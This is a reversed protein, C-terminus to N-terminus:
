SAAGVFGEDLRTLAAGAHVLLVEGVGVGDLRMVDVTEVAGSVEDRCGALARGADVSVVVMAVATDGCTICHEEESSCVAGVPSFPASV